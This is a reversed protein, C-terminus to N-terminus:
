FLLCVLAGSRGDGKSSFFSLSSALLFPFESFLEEASNEKYFFFFSQIHM